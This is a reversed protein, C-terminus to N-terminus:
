RENFHSPRGTTRSMSKNFVCIKVTKGEVKYYVRVETRASKRLAVIDSLIDYSKDVQNSKILEVKYKNNIFIKNLDLEVVGNFNKGGSFRRNFEEESVEEFNKFKNVFWKQGDYTPFPFKDAENLMKYRKM